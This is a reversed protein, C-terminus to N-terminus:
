LSIYLKCSLRFPLPPPQSYPIIDNKAAKHGNKPIPLHQEVHFMM